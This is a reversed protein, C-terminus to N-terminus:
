GQKCTHEPSLRPKRNQCAACDPIWPKDYPFACEGIKRTHEWDNRSRSHKCGPCKSDKALPARPDRGAAPTGGETAQAVKTKDVPYSQIWFEQRLSQDHDQDSWEDETDWKYLDLSALDDGCDDYHDELIKKRKVVPRDQGLEKLRKKRAKEREKAETPYTCSEQALTQDTPPVTTTPLAAQTSDPTWQAEGSSWLHHLPSPSSSANGPTSRLAMTQQAPGCLLHAQCFTYTIGELCELADRTTTHETAITNCTDWEKPLTTGILFSQHKQSNNTLKCSCAHFM